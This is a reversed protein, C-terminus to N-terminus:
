GRWEAEGEWQDGVVTGIKCAQEETKFPYENNLPTKDHYKV